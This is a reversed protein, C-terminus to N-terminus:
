ELPTVQHRAEQHAGRTRRQRLEVTSSDECERPWQPLSVGRCVEDEAVFGWVLAMALFRPADGFLGALNEGLSIEARTISM